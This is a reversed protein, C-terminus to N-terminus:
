HLALTVVEEKKFDPIPIDWEMSIRQVLGPMKCKRAYYMLDRFRGELAGHERLKDAAVEIAEYMRLLLFPFLEWRERNVENRLLSWIDYGGEGKLFYALDFLLADCGSKRRPLEHKLWVEVLDSYSPFNLIQGLLENPFKSRMFEWLDPTLTELAPRWNDALFNVAKKCHKYSLAARVLVEQDEPTAAADWGSLQRMAFEEDRASQWSDLKRRVGDSCKPNAKLMQVIARVQEDMTLRPINELILYCGRDSTPKGVTAVYEIVSFLETKLAEGELHMLSKGYAQDLEM